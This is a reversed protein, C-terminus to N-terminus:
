DKSLVILSDLEDINVMENLPPNFHNEEASIYGLLIYGKRISMLRLDRVTHSGTASISDPSKLYLESGKNSLIERFVDLLEPNEALQALLLSSMSSIVVFGTHDDGAVLQQNRESHMEATINFKLDYKTRLDRLNLLTFITEMDAAEEDKSHDSLIVVHEATDAISQLTAEDRVNGKIYRVSLGRASAISDIKEKEDKSLKNSVLTTEAVNDPLEQIIIPLSENIGIILASTKAEVVEADGSDARDCIQELSAEDFVDPSLRASDHDEAFFLVRDSERIVLGPPPNLVPSGDRFIGIPVARDFRALVEVFPVNASLPRDYLYLESGEFNFIEKFSESLGTQTCSHAIIRALTEYTKLTTIHHKEAISSPFQHKSKSIIANVVVDDNGKNKLLASVALVCKVTQADQAPSVIVTRCTEILCKELESPDCIDACRCIIRFNKPADINNKIIEEMEERDMDGAIVICAPKGAAALVLQRILTYEGQYLGLVVTHGKELVRSNGRKLETIREEIASTVIGILVSTFLVGAIAIVTMLLRYGLGGDEYSPMWANIVTAISDWFVSDASSDGHFRFLVILAAVAIALLISAAILARIM